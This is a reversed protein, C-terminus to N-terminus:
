TAIRLSGGEGNPMVRIGIARNTEDLVVSKGNPVVRIGIARNTEDLVVGSTLSNTLVDLNKREFTGNLFGVASSCRFGDTTTQVFNGAGEQPDTSNRLTKESGPNWRHTL